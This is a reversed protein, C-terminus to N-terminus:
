RGKEVMVTVDVKTIEGSVKDAAATYQTSQGDKLILTQSSSFSRFTPIDNLKVTGAATQGGAYVSTDSITVQIRFRGGDLSTAVCDINTGIEKYVVPGRMVPANAPLNEPMSVTPVPVQAGTRLSSPVAAGNLPNRDNATVSLAYPLSSVKKEGDYRSLVVRVKLPVLAPAASPPAPPTVRGPPPTSPEQARASGILALVMVATLVRMGLYQHIKV